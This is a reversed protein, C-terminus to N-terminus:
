VSSWVQCQPFIGYRSRSRALTCLVVVMYPLLTTDLETEVM